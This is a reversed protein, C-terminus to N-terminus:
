GKVGSSALGRIFFRQGILYLGLMPASAMLMGAMLVPVDLSYRSMAQELEHKLERRHKVRDTNTVFRADATLPRLDLADCLQQWLRGNPAAIM